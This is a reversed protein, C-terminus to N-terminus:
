FKLTINMRALLFQSYVRESREEAADMPEEGNDQPNFSNLEQAATFGKEGESEVWAQNKIIRDMMEPVTYVQKNLILYYATDGAQLTGALANLAHNMALFNYADRKLGSPIGKTGPYSLINALLYRYRFNNISLAFIENVSAGSRIHVTNYDNEKAAFAKVSAGPLRLKVEGSGDGSNTNSTYNFGVDEKSMTTTMSKGDKDIMAAQLDPSLIVQNSAVGDLTSIMKLLGNRSSDVIDDVLSEYLFGGVQSMVVGSSSAVGKVLRTKWGKNTVDTMELDKGVTRILTDYAKLRAAFSEFTRKADPARFSGDGTSIVKGDNAKMFAKFADGFITGGIDAKGMNEVIFNDVMRQIAEDNFKLKTDDLIEEYFDLLKQLNELKGDIKLLLDRNDVGTKDRNYAGRAPFRTLQMFSAEVEQVIEKKADKDFISGTIGRRIGATKIEEIVDAETIAKQTDGKLADLFDMVDQFESNNFSNKYRDKITNVFKEKQKKMIYTKTQSNSFLHYGRDVIDNDSPDLHIYPNGSKTKRVQKSLESKQKLYRDFVKIENAM